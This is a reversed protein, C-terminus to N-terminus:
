MPSLRIDVSQAWTMAKRRQEPTKEEPEDADQNEKGKGKKAPTVQARHKSNLAFVGHFRTPNVRSKPVLAEFKSIFDSPVFIIHTTGNQYPTKLEYGM